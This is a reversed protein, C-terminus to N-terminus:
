PALARPAKYASTPGVYWRWGLKALTMQMAGIRRETFGAECYSLYMLGNLSAGNYEFDVGDSVGFSMQSRQTAVGLEGLLM